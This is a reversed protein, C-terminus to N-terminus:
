AVPLKEPGKATLLAKEAGELVVCSLRGTAFAGTDIGIRNRRVEVGGKSITHGHVVVVGHDRRDDLFRNRIWVLAAPDQSALAVGPEIGAHVFLFDGARETLALGDLFARHAPPVAALAAARLGAWDARRLLPRADVGYSDLAAVGGNALWVSPDPAAGSLVDRFMEDHNGLLCVVRGGEAARRRALLDVVGASDPGRDVYDGVHVIRWDAVPRWMLDAAIRAHCGELLDRCGHVDGIAYVRLGEPVRAADLFPM